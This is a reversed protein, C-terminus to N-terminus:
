NNLKKITTKLTNKSAEIFSLDIVNAYVTQLIFSLHCKDWVHHWIEQCIGSKESVKKNRSKETNKYLISNVHWVLIWFSFIEFVSDSQIKFFFISESISPFSTHWLNFIDHWWFRPRFTTFVIRSFLYLVFPQIGQSFNKVSNWLKEWFMFYWRWSKKLIM